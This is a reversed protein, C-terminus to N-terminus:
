AILGVIVLVIGAVAALAAGGALWMTGTRAGRALDDATRTSVVFLGDNPKAIAGAGDRAYAGGLVYLEDDLPVIQEKTRIGILSDGGGIDVTIGGFSITSGGGSSPRELRNHTEVTRDMQADAPEVLVTGTADALAIPDHSREDSVVREEERTTRNGDKDREVRRHRESVTLRYWACEKGSAPATLPGGPAAVTRGSVAVRMGPADEGHGAVQACDYRPVEAFTRARRASRAALLPLVILGAVLLVTGAILFGM